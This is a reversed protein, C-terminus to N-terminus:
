FHSYREKSVIGALDSLRTSFINLLDGHREKIGAVFLNIEGFFLLM